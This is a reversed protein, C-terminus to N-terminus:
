FDVAAHAAEVETRMKALSGETERRLKMMEGAGVTSVGADAARVEHRHRKHPQASGSGSVAGTSTGGASGSNGEHRKKKKERECWYCQAKSDGPVAGSSTRAGSKNFARRNSCSVCRMPEGHHKKGYACIKCVNAEQAAQPGSSFACLLTCVSCTRPQGHRARGSECSACPVLGGTSRPGDKALRRCDLRCFMCEDKQCNDYCVACLKERRGKDQGVSGTPCNRCSM